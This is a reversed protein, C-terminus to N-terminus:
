DSSWTRQPYAALQQRTSTSRQVGDIYQGGASVAPLLEAGKLRRFLALEFDGLALGHLYLQPLFEAVERTHRKFLPLVRSVFREDLGRRPRLIGVAATKQSLHVNVCLTHHVASGQTM